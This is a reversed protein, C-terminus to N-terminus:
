PEDRATRSAREIQRAVAAAVGRQFWCVPVTLRPGVSREIRLVKVVGLLLFGVGLM